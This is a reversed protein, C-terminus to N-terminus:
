ASATGLRPDLCPMAVWAKAFIGALKFHGCAITEGAGDVLSVSRVTWNSERLDALGKIESPIRAL